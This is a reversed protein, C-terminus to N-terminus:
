QLYSTEHSSRLIGRYARCITRQEAPDIAMPRKRTLSNPLACRTGLGGPGGPQSPTTRFPDLFTIGHLIHLNTEGRLTSNERQRIAHLGAYTGPNATHTDIRQRASQLFIAASLERVPDVWAFHLSSSRARSAVPLLRLRYSSQHHTSIRSFDPHCLSIEESRPHFPVDSNSDFKVSSLRGCGQCARFPRELDWVQCGFFPVFQGGPACACPAHM